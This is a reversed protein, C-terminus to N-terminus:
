EEWAKVEEMLVRAQDLYIEHPEGTLNLGATAFRVTGNSALSQHVNVDETIAKELAPNVDALNNRGSEFM